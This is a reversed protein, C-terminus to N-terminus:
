FESAESGSSKLDYTGSRTIHEADTKQWLEM